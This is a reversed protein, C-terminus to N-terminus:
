DELIDLIWRHIPEEYSGIIKPLLSSHNSTNIYKMDKFPGNLIVIPSKSYIKELFIQEKYNVKIPV